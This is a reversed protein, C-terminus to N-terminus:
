AAEDGSRGSVRFYVLTLVLLILALMVGVAAGAGPDRDIFTYRYSLYALSISANNPGGATLVMPEYFVQFVSIIQLIFLLKITPAIAPLTVHRVSQLARAGDLRAAEYLSTDIAQLSALYILATGGAGRWTLVLVIVPIVRREDMLLQVPPLGLLRMLGNVMSGNSGNLISQWIMVVAIGSIISPLYLAFRFFGKLHVVESLLLGLAMPLLFGILLSWFGYRFTNALARPFAPDRFVRLYNALGVFEQREFRLVSYLSFSVNELLPGWVFYAFLALGPLIIAWAPANKRLFPLLRKSM